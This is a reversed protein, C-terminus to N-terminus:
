EPWYVASQNFQFQNELGEEFDFVDDFHSREDYESKRMMGIKILNYVIEGFDSTSEVGWNALVTRAMLGYQQLAYRRLAECLQQGTLHQEGEDVATIEAEADPRDLEWELETDRTNLKQDMAYNLGFQVFRYAERHYRRDMILLELLKEDSM